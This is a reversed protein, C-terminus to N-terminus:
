SQYFFHEPLLPWDHIEHQCDELVHFTDDINIEKLFVFGWAFNMKKISHGKYINFFYFWSQFSDSFRLSIFKSPSLVCYFRKKCNSLFGLYIYSLSVSQCAQFIIVVIWSFFQERPLFYPFSRWRFIISIGPPHEKCYYM